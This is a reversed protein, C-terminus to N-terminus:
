RSEKAESETSSDKKKVPEGKGSKKKKKAAASATEETSKEKKTQRPKKAKDPAAPKEAEEQGTNFDVLEIVAMEAGDGPRQGLKV